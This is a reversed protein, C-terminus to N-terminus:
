PPTGTLLYRMSKGRSPLFGYPKDLSVPGKVSIVVAEVAVLEHLPALLIGVLGEAQLLGIM